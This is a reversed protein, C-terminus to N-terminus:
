HRAHVPAVTQRLWAPDEAAAAELAALRDEIDSSELCHRVERLIRAASAADQWTMPRPRGQSLRPGARAARRRHNCGRDGRPWLAKGRGLPASEPSRLGPDPRKFATELLRAALLRGVIYSAVIDAVIPASNTLRAASRIANITSLNQMGPCNLHLQGPM